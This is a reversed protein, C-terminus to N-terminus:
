VFCTMSLGEVGTSFSSLLGEDLEDLRQLFIAVTLFNM